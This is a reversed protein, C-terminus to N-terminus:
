GAAMLRRFVRPLEEPLDEAILGPGFSLACEVHLWAAIEVMNFLDASPSPAALGAIMGALVDGAGATALWPTSRDYVAAHVSAGGDPAAIVTDAGKLLVICGARAAAERVVEIKSRRGRASQSLDPFLRAFEGEHPTLVCRPHLQGFLTQPDESYASLADADLVVVPDRAGGRRALARTVLARTRSGTGLGPGICFGTTREDAVADLDEPDRLSRTMVADLQAANEQLAAPPCVLTVLGAGARLAARASMRAAGGRGAGGAFVAVHGHDFKHGGGRMKGIMSMPWAPEGAPDGAGQPTVLRAVDPDPPLTVPAGTRPLGIDVVAISGCITPGTNLYHGPKPSHFTVTLDVPNGQGTPASEDRLMWGTDLDLGSPADLAVRRIGDARPWDGAALMAFIKESVPRTLGTGFVADVILDPRAARAINYPEMLTVPHDAAWLDHNHRADPPMRATDGLLFVDVEWGRAALLRAVVFGDGGNNGAGCLVMARGPADRWEPWQAILCAVAGAGAREMLERGTVAGSDMARKELDRMQAATLLETM